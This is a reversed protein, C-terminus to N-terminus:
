TSELSMLQLSSSYDMSIWSVMVTYLIFLNYLHSELVVIYISLICANSLSAVSGFHYNFGLRFYICFIRIDNDVLAKKNM